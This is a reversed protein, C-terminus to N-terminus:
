DDFAAYVLTRLERRIPWASSPILQTMFIVILDEAPDIWFATSAAGGWYFQGPSGALLTKAPDILVAFGLGFGVGANTEESFLSRSLQTLDKGGPLHNATMLAITKRSLYRVGGANGGALLMACFKLYDAATSVMGGGGSVLTPATLYVSTPADDQLAMVGKEDRNYCCTLRPAKEPPVFFATDSMGLPETIRTRVFDEFPMGSIVGVLYGLVDTSVSYNWAEGPSFDLPLGALAAIMGDLTLKGRVNEM